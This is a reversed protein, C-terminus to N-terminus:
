VCKAPVWRSTWKHLYRNYYWAWHGTTWTCTYTNTYTCPGGPPCNTTQMNGWGGGGSWQNPAAVAPSAVASGIGGALIGAMGFVAALRKAQGIMM